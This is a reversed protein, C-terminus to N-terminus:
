YYVKHNYIYVIKEEHMKKLARIVTEVRLGTFDAIQQRTYPILFQQNTKTAAKLNDFFTQIRQEPTTTILIQAKQSKEYIRQAFVQLLSKNTHPHDEILLLFKEKALRFVITDTLCIASSPYPKMILLPPEGFSDGAQFIGQILEKGEDNQAVVKVVGEMVQFFYRAENGEQFVFAGKKFQKTSAGYALLLHTDIQM